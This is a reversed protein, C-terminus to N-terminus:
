KDPYFDSRVGREERRCLPRIIPVLVEHERRLGSVAAIRLARALVLVVVVEQLRLVCVLAVVDAELVHERSGRNRVHVLEDLVPLVSRNKKKTENPSNM